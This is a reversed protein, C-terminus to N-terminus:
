CSESDSGVNETDQDLQSSSQLVAIESSSQCIQEQFEQIKLDQEERLKTIKQNDSRIKQARSRLQEIAAYRNQLEEVRARAETVEQKLRQLEEEMEEAGKQEAIFPHELLGKWNLRKQPDKEILSRLLSTAEASVIRDPFKLESHIAKILHPLGTGTPLFPHKGYLMQYVIIGLSWLDTNDTYRGEKFMEPAMYLPTGLITQMLQNTEMSRAFTFDAIKMLFATQSDNYNDTYHLLINAPKLDRHAVKQTHLYYLGDIIQSTIFKVTQEPLQPSKALFSELSQGSCYEVILYLHGRINLTDYLHVINTHSIQKMIDVERDLLHLNQRDIKATDMKKIAVDLNTRLHKGHYVEAFNGRGLLIGTCLYDGVIYLNRFKFDNTITPFVRLLYVILQVSESSLDKLSRSLLEQLEKISLKTYDTSLM